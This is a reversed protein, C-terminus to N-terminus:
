DEVKEIEVEYTGEPLDISLYPPHMVEWRGGSSARIIDGKNLDKIEVQAGGVEVTPTNVSNIIM